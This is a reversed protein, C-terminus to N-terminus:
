KSRYDGRATNGEAPAHDLRYSVESNILITFTRIRGGWGIRGERIAVSIPTPRNLVSELVSEKKLVGSNGFSATQGSKCVPPQVGFYLMLVHAVHGRCENYQAQMCSAHTAQSEDFRGALSFTSLGARSEVRRQPRKGETGAKEVGM